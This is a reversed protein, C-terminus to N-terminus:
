LFAFFEEVPLLSIAPFLSFDDMVLKDLLFSITYKKLAGFFKPVMVPALILFAHVTDRAIWIKILATHM